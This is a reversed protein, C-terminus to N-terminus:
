LATLACRSDMVLPILYEQLFQKKLCRMKTIESVLCRNMFIYFIEAFLTIILGCCLTIKLSMMITNVPVCFTEAVLTIIMRSCMEVKLKVLFWDVTTHFIGTIMTIILCSLFAMQFSMFVFFIIQVCYLLIIMQYCFTIDNQISKWFLTKNCFCSNSWLHEAQM